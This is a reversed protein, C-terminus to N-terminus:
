PAREPVADRRLGQEDLLLRLIVGKMLTDGFSAQELELAGKVKLAKLAATPLVFPESAPDEPPVYRGIALQDGRLAFEGTAGEGAGRRFHGTFRTDDLILSFPELSVAGAAYEWSTSLQLKGLATVDTTKPASVGVSALLARPDFTNTEIKGSLRPEDRLTGGLAGQVELVGFRVDFEDVQVASFDAPATLEPVQIRFPVGQAAFGPMHLVGSFDTDTLAEGPAIEDTTLDIATIEIRRPVTEDFFLIRGDEIRVGDIRLQMPEDNASEPRKGGIGQWNAAGDARRVLEVNAGVLVVRDAVLRGGLLPLLRAGVRASRWSVMPGEGFGPPNAFRGEGTRLSLWPFFGLEIDGQLQFDRGTADRVATEINSKFTNPDVFWVIVMVGLVALAVIAGLGLSVWKLLRV